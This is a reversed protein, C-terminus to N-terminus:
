FEVVVMVPRHDSEKPANVVYAKKVKLKPANLVWVYDIECNPKNAPFTFADPSIKKWGMKQLGALTPDGPKANFDGVIFIPKHYKAQEKKIVKLSELRSEETLSLHTNFFVFSKFETIQLTRKEEKGPLPVYRSKLPKAKSLTGIGYFGGKFPIAPAYAHEMKLMEALEKLIDRNGCRKNKQDMEQIGTVDPSEAAIVDAVQKVNINNGKLGHCSRVNYTMIRVEEAMAVQCVLLSLICVVAWFFGTRQKM